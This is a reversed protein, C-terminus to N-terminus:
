SMEPSCPCSVAKLPQLHCTLRVQGAGDSKPDVESLFDWVLLDRLAKELSVASAEIRRKGPDGVAPRRMMPRKPM